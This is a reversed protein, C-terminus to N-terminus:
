LKGLSSLSLLVFTIIILGVILSIAVFGIISVMKKNHKRKQEAIAMDEITKQCNQKESVCKEIMAPSNNYEGLKEFVKIAEDFESIAKIINEKVFTNYRLTAESVLNNAREYEEAKKEAIEIEKIKAQYEQKRNRCTEVMTESSEYYGLSLFIKEAEDLESMADIINEKIFTDYHSKSESVLNNAQKYKESNQLERIKEDCKSVMENSDKYSSLSEFIERAKEIQNKDFNSYFEYATKYKNENNHENINHEHERVKESYQEILEKSDKYDSINEFIEKAKTLKDRDSFEDEYITLAEQYKKECYILYNRKNIYDIYSEIESKIKNDGLKM